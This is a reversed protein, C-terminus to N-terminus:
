VVWVEVVQWGEGTKRVSLLIRHTEHTDDGMGRVRFRRRLEIYGLGEEVIAAGLVTLEIEDFRRTFSELAAVAVEWRVPAGAPSGPLRLRVSEGGELLRKFRHERFADRALDAVPGLDADQAAAASLPWGTLLGIVVALGGLKM